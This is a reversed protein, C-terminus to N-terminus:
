RRQFNSQQWEPVRAARTTRDAPPCRGARRCSAFLTAGILARLGRPRGIVPEPTWARRAISIRPAHERSGYAEGDRQHWSRFGQRGSAASNRWEASADRAPRCILPKPQTKPARRRGRHPALVRFPRGHRAGITHFGTRPRGRFARQRLVSPERCPSSRSLADIAKTPRCPRGRAASRAIRLPAEAPPELFGM